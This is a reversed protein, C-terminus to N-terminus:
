QCVRQEYKYGTIRAFQLSRKVAASKSKTTLVRAREGV